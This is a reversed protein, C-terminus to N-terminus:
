CPSNDETAYFAQLTHRSPIPILSADQNDAPISSEMLCFTGRVIKQGTEPTEWGTTIEIWGEMKEGDSSCRSSSSQCSFTYSASQRAVSNPVDVELVTLLLPVARGTIQYLNLTMHDPKAYLLVRRLVCSRSSPVSLTM